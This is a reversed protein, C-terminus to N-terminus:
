DSKSQSKNLSRGFLIGFTQFLKQVVFNFESNKYFFGLQAKIRLVIIRNFKNLM